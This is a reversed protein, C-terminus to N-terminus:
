NTSTYIRALSLTYPRFSPHEGGKGAAMSSVQVRLALARRCSRGCRDSNTLLVVLLPSLTPLSTSLGISLCSENVRSLQLRHNGIASPLTLCCVVFNRGRIKPAISVRSETLRRPSHDRVRVHMLQRPLGSGMGAEAEFQLFDLRRELGRVITEAQDITPHSLITNRFTIPKYQRVVGTTTRVLCLQRPLYTHMAHSGDANLSRVPLFDIRDNSSPSPCHEQFPDWDPRNSSCVEQFHPWQLQATHNLMSQRLRGPNRTRILVISSFSRANDTPPDLCSGVSGGYHSSRRSVREASTLLVRMKNSISHSSTAPSMSSRHIIGPLLLRSRYLHSRVVCRRVTSQTVTQRQHDIRGGTQLIDEEPIMRRNGSSAVAEADFWRVSHTSLRWCIIFHCDTGQSDSTDAADNKSIIDTPTTVVGQRYQAAHLSLSSLSKDANEMTRDLRPRSLVVAIVVQAITVKYVTIFQEHRSADYILSSQTILLIQAANCRSVSSYIVEDDRHFDPSLARIFLMGPFIDDELLSYYLRDSESEVKVLRYRAAADVPLDRAWVIKYDHCVVVVGVDCDLIWRRAVGEAVGDGDRIWGLSFMVERGGRRWGLGGLDARGSECRELFREWADRLRTKIELDEIGGVSREVWEGFIYLHDQKMVLHRLVESTM